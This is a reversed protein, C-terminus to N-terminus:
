ALDFVLVEAPAAATIDVSTEDSIAAGDGAELTVGNVSVKGAALQVWAHRGPALPQAIRQGADLLGSFIRADQHIDLSGDAGDPSVIQRLRNHRDAEPFVRDEYRPTAGRRDPMIWIQLLHVPDTKSANFESHTIGTGASMRQVVGRRITGQSGTSDQHALAGDLVYTVIEMDRHPHMGFGAAPAVRDENIVRLSRFGMAAPDHYDAFSFTHFTDLWGHNFHGRASAPRKTIM